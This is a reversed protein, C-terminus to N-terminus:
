PTSVSRALLPFEETEDIADSTPPAFKDITKLVAEVNNRMSTEYSHYISRRVIVASLITTFITMVFSVIFMWQMVRFSFTRTFSRLKGLLSSDTSAFPTAGDAFPTSSPPM